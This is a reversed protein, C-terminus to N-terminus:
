APSTRGRKAPRRRPPTCQASSGNIPQPARLEAIGHALDRDEAEQSRGASAELGQSSRQQARQEVATAPPSTARKPPGTPTFLVLEEDLDDFDSAAPSASAPGDETDDPKLYSSLPTPRPLFRQSAFYPDQLAEEASPRMGPELALFRALLPL